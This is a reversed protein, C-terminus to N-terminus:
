LIEKLFKSHLNSLFKKSLYKNIKEYTFENKIARKGQYEVYAMACWSIGRLCTMALYQNFKDKDIARNRSYIDLFKQIDSQNLITTTKWFTTTPALFHALDQEAEGIIPKEWDIIYSNKDKNILFNSSNLETNIICPNKLDRELDFKLLSSILAKLFDATNKNQFKSNLYIDAMNQCERIMDKLPKQAIIFKHNKPIKVSHVKALLNAAIAMDTKYNLAKGPLFEISMGGRPLLLNPAFYKIPKPTVGLIELTKLANFEYEIQNKLGIQSKTNIRFVLKQKSKKFIYNINYEGSALHKVKKVGLIYSFIDEKTDIDRLTKHKFVSLGLEDFKSCISKFVSDKKNYDSSFIQDIVKKLGIACYGGDFTPIIATDFTDLKKFCLELNKANLNIIDSGILLIKDFGLSKIIKFAHLMRQALNGDSQPYFKYSKGLINELISKEDKPTYFVFIECNRLKKLENNITLIMNKHLKVCNIPSLFDLLRTKTQNKLPVRTFLILANKM